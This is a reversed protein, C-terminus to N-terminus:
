YISELNDMICGRYIAYHNILLFDFVSQNFIKELYKGYLLTFLETTSGKSDLTFISICEASLIDISHM